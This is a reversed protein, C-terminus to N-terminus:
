ILGFEVARAVAQLRSHVGLKAMLNEIHNRVTAPTVVLNQAIQRVTAGAALMKLVETERTTLNITGARAAEEVDPRMERRNTLDRAIHIAIPAEFGQVRAVVIGMNVWRRPAADPHALVDYDAVPQGRRTLCITSCEGRCICRGGYDTGRLLDFCHAGIAQSRSVGFLDAAAENLFVIEQGANVAYIADAAGGFLANLAELPLAAGTGAVDSM